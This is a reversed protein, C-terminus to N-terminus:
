QLALYPWGGFVSCDARDHAADKTGDCDVIQEVPFLTFPLLTFPFFTFSVLTFAAAVVPMMRMSSPLPPPPPPTNGSLPTLANGALAWVSEVNETASFAWCTGAATTLSAAAAPLHLSPCGASGQNKVPTVVNPHSRWDWETVNATAV